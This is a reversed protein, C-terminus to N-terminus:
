SLNDTQHKNIYDQMTKNEPLTLATRTLIDQLNKPRSIAVVMKDHTKHPEITQNYLQCINSRQIGKPHHTWHIYLNDQTQLDPKQSKIVHNDLTAAAQLLLPLLGKVTHGQAHL